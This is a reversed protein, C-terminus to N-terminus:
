SYTPHSCLGDVSISLITCSKASKKSPDSTFSESILNGKPLQLIWLVNFTFYIFTHIVNCHSGCCSQHYCHPDMILSLSFCDHLMLDFDHCKSSIYVLGLTFMKLFSQAKSGINCAKFRHHNHVQPIDIGHQPLRQM